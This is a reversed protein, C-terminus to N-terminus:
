GQVGGQVLKMWMTVLFSKHLNRMMINRCVSIQTLIWALQIAVHLVGLGSRFAGCIM